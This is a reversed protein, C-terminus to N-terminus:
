SGHTGSARAATARRYWRCRYRYRYRRAVAAIVDHAADNRLFGCLIHMENRRHEDDSVVPVHCPTDHRRRNLGAASRGVSVSRYRFGSRMATPVTHVPSIKKATM